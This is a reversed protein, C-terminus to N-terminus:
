TYFRSLHDALRIAMAVITLTPNAYSSTPFVSSSAIYLNKAGYVQCNEDVVGRFPNSAMRTTGIYHGGTSRLNLDPMAKIRGIRHKILLDEILQSLTKINELDQRDPQWNVSLRNLGFPDKEDGLTVRSSFNPIQEADIRLTFIRPVEKFFFNRLLTHPLSRQDAYKKKEKQIKYDQISHRDLVINRLHGLIHRQDKLFQASIQRRKLQGYLVRLHEYSLVGSHHDPNDINQRDATFIRHNLIQYQQQTKADFSMARHYFMGNSLTECAVNINQPSTTEINIHHSFHGMYFRGLIDYYNGIGNPYVDNSLLLLRTVELGGTALIFQKATVSFTNQALSSVKIKNILQNEADVCLNLCNAYIYIKLNDATTLTKLYAKGFNTPTSFRYLSEVIHEETELGPLMSLHQVEEPLAAKVTYTYDGVECYNHARQYYPDLDRKTIPWGSCPVYSRPEFDIDDFPVCRGTWQTTAGGFQRYRFQDLPEHLELNAEGKNFDQTEKEYDMGGSELLIVHMGKNCFEHAITIGAAGAGIICIDSEISEGLAINRSDIIM